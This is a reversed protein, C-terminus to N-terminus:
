AADPPPHAPDVVVDPAWRAVAASIRKATAAPRSVVARYTFRVIIWGAAILDADRDRDGEFGARDLGHYRWGDCELLVPTDRVRFDVEYGEIIPHFEVPPLRYRAVLRAMATELVSDAPKDDISWEAIADRLAVVGRRGQRAHDATAREIATLSALNAAMAHGVASHLGAPDVAGLDVITRLINTCRINSRRQPVLRQRDTPHHIVVGDLDLSRRGDLLIVDVPDIGPRPIGWLHAASRHSAMAPAAMAHVGGAIRQEPTDPTGPMRAVLPHIQV